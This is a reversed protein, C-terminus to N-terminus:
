VYMLLLCLADQDTQRHKERSKHANQTERPLDISKHHVFKQTERPVDTSEHHVHM